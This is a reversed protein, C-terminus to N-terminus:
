ASYAQDDVNTTCVYAHIKGMSEFVREFVASQPDDFRHFFYDFSELSFSAHQFCFTKEQQGGGM